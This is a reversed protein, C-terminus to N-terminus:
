FGEKIWNVDEPRETKTRNKKSENFQFNTIPITQFRVRNLQIHDVKNMRDMNMIIFRIFHITTLTTFIGYPILSELTM